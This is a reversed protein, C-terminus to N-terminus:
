HDRFRFVTWDKDGGGDNEWTGSEWTWSGAWGIKEFNEHARRSIRLFDEFNEHARLGFWSM